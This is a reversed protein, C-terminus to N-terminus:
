RQLRAGWAAALRDASDSLSRGSRGNLQFGENIWYESITILDGTQLDIEDSDRRFVLWTEVRQAIQWRLLTGVTILAPKDPGVVSEVSEWLHEVLSHPLVSGHGFLAASKTWVLKSIASPKVSAVGESVTKVCREFTRPHLRKRLKAIIECEEITRPDVLKPKWTVDYLPM